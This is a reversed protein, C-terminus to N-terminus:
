EQAIRQPVEAANIRDAAPPELLAEATGRDTILTNIWHGMVAGRIATLKRPGGAVGVARPTHRLQELTMGIVRSDLASRIPIGDADIFRILLDGVGGSSRVTDLEESTFVNGSSALLGSPELTGIGVLALTVSKFQDVAERVFSDALLVDRAQASGTVGPAPLFVPEGHLLESLRRTLHVAHIQAGPSGLGGLVQVVKTDRLTTVPHMADVMALLTASWSSIGVVEANHMKTEVYFAAAAGLDRMLHDESTPDSDVVVAELLGFRRELEEELAPHTGTPVGVTIRVLGTENAQRLLRSVKPQSLHLRAAIEPQKIGSEYYMRAVRTLLRLEDIRAM